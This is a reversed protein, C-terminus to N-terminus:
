LEFVRYRSAPSQVVTGRIAELTEGWTPHILKQVARQKKLYRKLSEMARGDTTDFVWTCIKEEADDRTRELYQLHEESVDIGEIIVTKRNEIYAATIEVTM